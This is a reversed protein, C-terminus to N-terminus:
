GGAWAAEEASGPEPLLVGGEMTHSAPIDRTSTSVAEPGVGATAALAASIGSVIEAKQDDDRGARITGNVVAVCSTVRAPGM